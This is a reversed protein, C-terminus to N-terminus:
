KAEFDRSFIVNDNKDIYRITVIPNKVNVVSKLVKATDYFTDEQDKIGQELAAAIEDSKEIQTFKYTYVLKDGEATLSIEMSSDTPISKLENQAADSEVYDKMTAYKGNGGCATLGMALVVLCAMVIAKFSRKKM